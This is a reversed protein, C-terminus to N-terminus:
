LYIYCCRFSVDELKARFWVLRRRPTDWMWDPGDGKPEAREIYLPLIKKECEFDKQLKELTKLLVDLSPPPYLWTQVYNFMFM